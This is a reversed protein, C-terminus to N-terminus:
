EKVRGFGGIVISLGILILTGGMFVYIKQIWPEGALGYIVGAFGGILSIISLILYYLGKEERKYDKKLKPIRDEWYQKQIQKNREQFMEWTENDLARIVGNQTMKGEGKWNRVFRPVDGRQIDDAM